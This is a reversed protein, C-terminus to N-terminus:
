ESETGSYSPICPCRKPRLVNRLNLEASKAGVAKVRAPHPPPLLLGDSDGGGPETDDAFETDDLGADAAGVFVRIGM